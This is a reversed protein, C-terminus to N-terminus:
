EDRLAMMPDVRSARFAPLYSAAAAVVSLTVIAIGMTVTDYFKLGFLLTSATKGLALALGVGVVIGIALL